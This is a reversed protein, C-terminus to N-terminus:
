DHPEEDEALPEAKMEGQADRTLIEVKRQAEELTKNLSISLKMGQEYAEIAEELPLEEADMRRVIEELQALQEEFGTKKTKKAM